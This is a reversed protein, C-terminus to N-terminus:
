PGTLLCSVTIHENLAAATDLAEQGHGYVLCVGESSIERLPADPVTLHGEALLAAMKPAPDADDNSWGARDRIDVFTLQALDLDGAQEALEMLGPAEQACAVTVPGGDAMARLFDPAQHTCLGSHRSCTTEAGLGSVITESSVDMTAACSCLMVHRSHARTTGNASNQDAAAGPLSHPDSM